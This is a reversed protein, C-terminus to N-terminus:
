PIHGSLASTYPIEVGICYSIYKIVWRRIDLALLIEAPLPVKCRKKRLLTLIRIKGVLLFIQVLVIEMFFLQPCNHPSHRIYFPYNSIFRSLSLSNDCDDYLMQM